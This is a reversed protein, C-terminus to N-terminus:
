RLVTSEKHGRKIGERMIKNMVKLAVEGRKQEQVNGAKGEREVRRIRVKM